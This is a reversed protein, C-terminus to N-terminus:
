YRSDEAGAPVRASKGASDRLLVHVGNDRRRQRERRFLWARDYVINVFPPCACFTFRGPSGFTANQEHRFVSNYPPWSSSAFSSFRLCTDAGCCWPQSTLAAYLFPVCFSQPRTGRSGFRYPVEEFGVREILPVKGSTSKNLLLSLIFM